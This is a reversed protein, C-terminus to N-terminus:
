GCTARLVTYWTSQVVEPTYTSEVKQNNFKPESDVSSNGTLDRKGRRERGGEEEEEEEEEAEEEKLGARQDVVMDQM